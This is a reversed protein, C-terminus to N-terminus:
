SRNHPSRRLDLHRNFVILAALRQSRLLSFYGHTILQCPGLRRFRRLRLVLRDASSVSGQLRNGIPPGTISTGHPSIQLRRTHFCETEPMPLVADHSVQELVDLIVFPPATFWLHNRQETQTLSVFVGRELPTKANSPFNDLRAVPAPAIAAVRFAIGRGGAM